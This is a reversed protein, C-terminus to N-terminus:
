RYDIEIRKLSPCSHYPCDKRGQRDQSVYLPNCTLNFMSLPQNNNGLVSTLFSWTIRSVIAGIIGIIRILRQLAEKAAAEPTLVLPVETDGHVSLVGRDMPAM